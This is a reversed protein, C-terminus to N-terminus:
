KTGWVINAWMKLRVAGDSYDKALEQAWIGLWKEEEGEKFDIFKEYFKPLNGSGFELGEKGPYVCYRLLTEGQCNKFGVKELESVLYEPDSMEKKWLTLPIDYTGNPGRLRKIVRIAVDKHGVDKWSTIYCKGAPKTVRYLHKAAKEPESFIM